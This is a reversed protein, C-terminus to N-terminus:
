PPRPPEAWGRPSRCGRPDSLLAFFQFQLSIQTPNLSCSNPEHSFRAMSLDPYSNEFANEKNLPQYSLRLYSWKKSQINLIVLQRTHLVFFNRHTWSSFRKEIAKKLAATVSPSDLSYSAFQPLGKSNKGNGGRSTLRTLNTSPSESIEDIISRNQSASTSAKGHTRRRLRLCRFLFRIWSSFM